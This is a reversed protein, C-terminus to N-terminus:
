SANISITTDPWVTTAIKVIYDWDGRGPPLRDSRAAERRTQSFQRGVGQLSAPNQDDGARHSRPWADRPRGANPHRQRLRNRDITTITALLLKPVPRGSGGIRAAITLWKISAASIKLDIHDIKM